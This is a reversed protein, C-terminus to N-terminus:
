SAQEGVRAGSLDECGTQQVDHLELADLGSYGQGVRHIIKTAGQAGVIGIGQDRAIVERAGVPIRASEVLGDVQELLNEGASEPDQLRIVEVDQGGPVIKGVGVLQRLSEVVGNGQELLVESVAFANQSGIM